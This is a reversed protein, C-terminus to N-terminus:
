RPKLGSPKALALAISTAFDGHTPDKPLEAAVKSLDLGGPLTGDKVLADLATRVITEVHAFVNM